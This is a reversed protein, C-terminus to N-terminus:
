FTTNGRTQFVNGRKWPGHRPSGYVVFKFNIAETCDRRSFGTRNTNLPGESWDRIQVAVGRIWHDVVACEPFVRFLNALQDSCVNMTSLGIAKQDCGFMKRSM